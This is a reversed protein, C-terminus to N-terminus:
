TFGPQGCDDEVDDKDFDDCHWDIEHSCAVKGDECITKTKSRIGFVIRLTKNGLVPPGPPRITWVALM